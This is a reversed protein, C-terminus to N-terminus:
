CPAVALSIAAEIVACADAAHGDACHWGRALMAPKVEAKKARGNGLAAKRISAVTLERRPVGARVAAMHAAYAIANPIDTTGAPGFPREIILCKARRLHPRLWEQFAIGAEASDRDWQERLDVVGCTGDSMAWGTMKGPDLALLVAGSM